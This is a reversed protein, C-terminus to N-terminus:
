HGYTQECIESEPSDSKWGGYRRGLACVDPAKPVPNPLGPAATHPHRHHREHHHPHAPTAARPRPPAAPPAETRHPPVPPMTDKPRDSSGVMELAQQAPAQVARPETSGEPRPARPLTPATDPPPAPTAPRQVTMCGSLASVAVTVLLAATTTTRHM